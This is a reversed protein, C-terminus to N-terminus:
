EPASVELQLKHSALRAEEENVQQQHQTLRQEQQQLLQSLEKAEESSHLQEQMVLLVLITLTLINHHHLPVRTRKSATEQRCSKGQHCSVSDQQGNFHHVAAQAICHALPLQCAATKQTM